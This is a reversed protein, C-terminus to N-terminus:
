ERSGCTGWREPRFGQSRAVGVLVRFLYGKRCGKRATGICLRSLRVIAVFFVENSLRPRVRVRTRPCKSPGSRSREQCRNTSDSSCSFLRRSGAVQLSLLLCWPIFQICAEVLVLVVTALTVSLRRVSLFGCSCVLRHSSARDAPAIHPWGGAAAQGKRREPLIGVCTIPMCRCSSSTFLSPLSTKVPLLLSVASTATALSTGEVKLLM